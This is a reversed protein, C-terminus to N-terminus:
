GNREYYNIAALSRSFASFCACFDGPFELGFEVAVERAVEGTFVGLWLELLAPLPVGFADPVDVGM